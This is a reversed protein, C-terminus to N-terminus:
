ENKTQKIEITINLKDGPLLNKILRYLQKAIEITPIAPSKNKRGMRLIRQQLQGM